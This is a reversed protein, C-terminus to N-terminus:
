VEIELNMKESQWNCQSRASCEFCNRSLKDARGFIAEPTDPRLGTKRHGAILSIIRSKNEENCGAEDLIVSATEQGAIDHPIGETYEQVRGIDHLLAASYVIDAPIRVKKRSCLIMTIRAVSLFHEMDHRCFIRDRELESLRKLQSLYYENKLIRNALELKMENVLGLKNNCSIIIDCLDLFLLM